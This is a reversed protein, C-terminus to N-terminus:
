SSSLSLLIDIIHQQAARGAVGLDDQSDDNSITTLYIDSLHYNANPLYRGIHIITVGKNRVESLFNNNQALNDTENLLILLDNKKLTKLFQYKYIPDNSAFAVKGLNILGIVFHDAVFSSIGNGLVQIKVSKKIANIANIFSSEENLKITASVAEIKGTLLRDSVDNLKQDSFHQPANEGSPSSNKAVDENIAFKLDPYGKYDLKQCFKVVSSQSIGVANALQQSSYDRLLAANSVIFDVLKKENASVDDRISSIKLICSM